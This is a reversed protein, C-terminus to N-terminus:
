DIVYTEEGQFFNSISEIIGAQNQTDFELNPLTVNPASFAPTQITGFITLIWVVFIFLTLCLSISFAVARQEDESKQRVKNLWKKSFIM